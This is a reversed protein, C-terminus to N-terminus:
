NIGIEATHALCARSDLPREPLWPRALTAFDPHERPDFQVFQAFMTAFM